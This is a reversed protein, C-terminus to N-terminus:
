WLESLQLARTETQRDSAIKRWRKPLFCDVYLHGNILFPRTHAMWKVHCAHWPDGERMFVYSKGAERLPARLQGNTAVKASSGSGADPEVIWIDYIKPTSRSVAM